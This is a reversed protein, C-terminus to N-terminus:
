SFLMFITTMPPLPSMPVLTTFFRRSLPWSTTAAEGEFPMLETVPSPSALRQGASLDDDIHRVRGRPLVLGNQLKEFRRTAVEQGRFGGRADSMVHRQRDDAGVAQEGATVEARLHGLFIQDLRGRNRVRDDAGRLEELEHAADGLRGGFPLRNPKGGASICGMTDSSTAATM